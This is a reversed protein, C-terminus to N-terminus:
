YSEDIKLASDVNFSDSKITFQERSLPGYLHKRFSDIPLDRLSRLDQIFYGGTTQVILFSKNWGIKKIGSLYGDGFRYGEDITGLSVNDTKYTHSYLWFYDNVDKEYTDAGMFCSSLAPLLIFLIYQKMAYRGVNGCKHQQPM